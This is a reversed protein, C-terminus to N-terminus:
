RSENRAEEKHMKYESVSILDDKLLDYVKKVGNDIVYAYRDNIPDVDDYKCPLTPQKRFTKTYLNMDIIGWKGNYKVGILAANSNLKIDDYIPSLIISPRHYNRVFGYKGDSIFPIMFFRSIPVATYEDKVIVDCEKPFQVQGFSCLSITLFFIISLLKKM